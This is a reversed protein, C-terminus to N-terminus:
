AGDSSSVKVTSPNQGNKPLDSIESLESRGESVCADAGDHRRHLGDHFLRLAAPLFALMDCLVVSEGTASLNIDAFDGESYRAVSSKSQANIASM